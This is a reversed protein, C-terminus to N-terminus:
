FVAIWGSPRSPRKLPLNHRACFWHDRESTLAAPLFETQLLAMVIRAGASGPV